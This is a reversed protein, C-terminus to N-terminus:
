FSLNNKRVFRADNCHLCKGNPWLLLLSRNFFAAMNSSDAAMNLLYCKGREPSDAGDDLIGFIFNTVLRNESDTTEDISAWIYQDKAKTQLNEMCENFLLPVYTKRLTSENPMNKGTYNEIFRIVSPHGTKKLPINAELFTKCLDMNFQNFQPRQHDSMFTQKLAASGNAASVNKKHKDTDIHQKVNSTKHGTLAVDCFKCFLISDDTRFVDPYESVIRRCFERISEKPKPM